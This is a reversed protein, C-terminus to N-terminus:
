SNRDLRWAALLRLLWTSYERNAGHRCSQLWTILEDLLKEELMPDILEGQLATNRTDLSINYINEIRRFFESFFPQEPTKLQLQLFQQLAMQEIKIRESVTSAQRYRALWSQFNKLLPSLPPPLWRKFHELEEDFSQVAGAVKLKTWM